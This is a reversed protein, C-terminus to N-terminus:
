RESSSEEGRGMVALPSQSMSVRGPGQPEGKVM